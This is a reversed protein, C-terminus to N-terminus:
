PDAGWRRSREKERELGPCTGRGLWVQSVWLLTNLYVRFPSSASSTGPGRLAQYTPMLLPAPIHTSAEPLAVLPLFRRRARFWASATLVRLLSYGTCKIRTSCVTVCKWRNIKKYALSSCREVGKLTTRPPASVSGALSSSSPHFSAISLHMFM